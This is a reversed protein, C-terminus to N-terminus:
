QKRQKRSKRSAKRKRMTKRGRYRRAGGSVHLPDGNNATSPNEPDTAVNHVNNPVRNQLPETLGSYEHDKVVGNDIYQRIDAVLDDPLPIFSNTVGSVSSITVGKSGNYTFLMIETENDKLANNLIEIDDAILEAVIYTTKTEFMIEYTNDFRTISWNAKPM